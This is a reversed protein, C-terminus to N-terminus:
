VRPDAADPGEIGPPCAEVARELVRLAARAACLSVERRGSRIFRLFAGPSQATRSAYEVLALLSGTDFCDPDAEARAAVAEVIGGPLLVRRKRIADVLMTFAPGGCTRLGESLLRGTEPSAASEGSALFRIAHPVSPGGSRLISAAARELLVIELDNRGDWAALPLAAAADEEIVSAAALAEACGTGPCSAIARWLETRPVGLGADLMRLLRPSAEAARLATLGELAARREERIDRTTRGGGGREAARLLPDLVIHSGTRGLARLAARRVWSSRDSLAHLVLRAARSGGSRGLAEVARTRVHPSPDSLADELAGASVAGGIAGLALAASKRIGPSLDGEVVRALEGLLRDDGTAGAAELVAKLDPLGFRGRELMGALFDALGDFPPKGPPELMESVQPPSLDGRRRKKERGAARALEEVSSHSRGDVLSICLDVFPFRRFRGLRDLAEIGGAARDAPSYFGPAADRFESCAARLGPLLSDRSGACVFDDGGLHGVMCDRINDRLCSALRRIVADGCAFGYHDNFPKFDTIDVWAALGDKGVVEREIYGFISTNGPLGTLPSVEIASLAKEFLGATTEELLERGACPPM